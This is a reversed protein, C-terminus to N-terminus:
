DKALAHFELAKSENRRLAYLRALDRYVKFILKNKHKINKEEQYVVHKKVEEM